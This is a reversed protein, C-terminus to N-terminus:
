IAEDRNIIKKERIEKNDILKIEEREHTTHLDSDVGDMNDNGMNNSSSNGQGKMDEASKVDDDVEDGWRVRNLNVVEHSDSTNSGQNDIYTINPLEIEMPKGHSIACEHKCDEAVDILDVVLSDSEVTEVQPMEVGALDDLTSKFVEAEERLMRKEIIRQRKLIKNRKCMLDYVSNNLEESILNNRKTENVLRVLCMCRIEYNVDRLASSRIAYTDLMNSLALTSAMSRAHKDMVKKGELVNMEEKNCDDNTEKEYQRMKLQMGGEKHSPLRKDFRAALSARKLVETTNDVVPTLKDYLDDDDDAKKPKILGEAEMRKFERKAIVAKVVGGIGEKVVTNSKRPTTRKEM